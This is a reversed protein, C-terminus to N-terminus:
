VPCALGEASGSAWFDAGKGLFEDWPLYHSGDCSFTLGVVGNFINLTGSRLYFMEDMFRLDRLSDLIPRIKNKPVVANAPYSQHPYILCTDPDTLADIDLLRYRYPDDFLWIVSRSSSFHLIVHFVGHDVMLEELVGLVTDISNDMMSNSRTQHFVTGRIAPDGKIQRWHTPEEYLKGTLPLNRLDFDAGIFGLVRGNENRVIQIATLSPRRARLSIYAQSLLFGASPVRENMYPRDSRDRGFDKEILGERSINDSIQVGNTDLAYMYKCMPLRSLAVNLLDDLTKREDWVRSCAEAVQALPERLLEKLAERQRAISEQMSNIPPEMNM